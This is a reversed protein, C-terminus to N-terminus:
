NNWSFVQFRNKDPLAAVTGDVQDDTLDKIGTFNLIEDLYDNLWSKPNTTPNPLLIKGSNWLEALPLARIYKDGVPNFRIIPIGDSEILDCIGKQPGNAELKIKVPYQSQVRKIIQKTTNIDKQWREGHILYHKDDKNLFVFLTSFDAHKNESYALDGGMSYNYGDKPLEDYYYVDKFLRDERRRPLGQYLASFTYEKKLIENIEYSRFLV